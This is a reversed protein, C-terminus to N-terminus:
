ALWRVQADGTVLLFAVCAAQVEEVLDAGDEATPLQLPPADAGGLQADARVQRAAGQATPSTCRWLRTVVNIIM